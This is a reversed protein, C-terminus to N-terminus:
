RAFILWQKRMPAKAWWCGRAKLPWEYFSLHLWVCALARRMATPMYIIHLLGISRESILHLAPSLVPRITVAAVGFVLGSICVNTALRGILAQTAMRLPLLRELLFLSLAVGTVIVLLYSIRVM